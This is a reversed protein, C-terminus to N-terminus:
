GLKPLSRGGLLHMHLHPVAQGADAGCNMVLRYGDALGEDRALRTALLVMRGVWAADADLLDAPGATGGGKPMVLIHTPALPEIDRIAIFEEDEYVRTSPLEDRIIRAFINDPDYPM